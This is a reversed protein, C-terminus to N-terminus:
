VNSDFKIYKQVKSLKKLKRHFNKWIMLTEELIHNETGAGYEIM